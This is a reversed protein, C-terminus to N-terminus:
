ILTFSSSKTTHLLLYFLQSLSSYSVSLLHIEYADWIRCLAVLRSKQCVLFSKWCRQIMRVKKLVQILYGSQFQTIYNFYYFLSIDNMYCFSIINHYNVKTLISILVLMSNM